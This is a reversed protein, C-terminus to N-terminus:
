ALLGDLWGKWRQYKEPLATDGREVLIKEVDRQAAPAMGTALLAAGLLSSESQRVLYVACHACQAIGQQLCTSGSLGGSLYVSELAAERHFDELIRVVRFIIAELLLAAIRQPPLHAVPQSFVIGFDNRFYPAGLGSPEALCYVDDIALNEARCEEVPYHALAIYVIAGLIGEGFM